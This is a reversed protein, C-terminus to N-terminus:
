FVARYYYDPSTHKHEDAMRTRVHDRRAIRPNSKGATPMKDIVPDVRDLREAGIRMLRTRALGLKFFIGGPETRRDLRDVRGAPDILVPQRM